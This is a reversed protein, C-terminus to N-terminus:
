LRSTTIVEEAKATRQFTAVGEYEAAVRTRRVTLERFCLGLICNRLAKTAKGRGRFLNLALAAQAEGEVCPRITTDRLDPCKDSDTVADIVDKKNGAPTALQVESSDAQQIDATEQSKCSERPM